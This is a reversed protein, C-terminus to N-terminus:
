AGAAPDVGVHAGELRAELLRHLDQQLADHEVAKIVEHAFARVLLRRAQVRGIARAQMYGIAEEDLQGVTAGHACQVDDAHIELQPRTDVRAGEDLLLAHHAQRGSTKQADQHVRVRGTFAGRSRDDLIGKVIQASTGGPRRHDVVVHTDAHDKDRLVYLGALALAAEEEVLDVHVDHRHTAGGFTVDVLGYHGARAVRVATTGIHRAAGLQLQLRLHSLRAGEAIEVETVADVLEPGEPDALFIEVIRAEARAGVDVLLRPYTSASRGAGDPATTHVVVIPGAGRHGPPVRLSLGDVFRAANLHTWPTGRAASARGTRAQEDLTLRSVVAGGLRALSTDLRSATTDLRGNLLVAEPAFPSLHLRDAPLPGPRRAPGARRLALAALPRTDTYLWDEDRPGPLGHALLNERASLALARRWALADAPPAERGLVERLADTLHPTTGTTM